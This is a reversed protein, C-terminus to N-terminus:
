ALTIVGRQYSPASSQSFLITNNQGCGITKTVLSGINPTYSFRIEQTLCKQLIDLDLAQLRIKLEWKLKM